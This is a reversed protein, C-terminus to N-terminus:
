SGSCPEGGKPQMPLRLCVRSGVDPQSSASIGYQRGYHLKLISNVNNLGLHGGSLQWDERGLQEVLEKPMGCGNDSVYILMDEGQAIAYLKIYGDERQAVGHIIANEVIPQLVLKPVLCSRFQEGVDMECTFRDGFRVLQIEVYREVLELESELTIFEEAMIAARLLDALDTALDAIRPQGGAVAMWKVSDLTNYLFHPNLQAQMMRLQADNLERQRQVSRDLYDKYEMVMHNFSGALRGLEDERQTEIRVDFNGREVQGMAESLANVPSSLHRSLMWAGWLCLMLCLVSTLGTVLYFASMVSHTFVRPQELVVTFAGVPATYYAFAESGGTLPQGLLLESRLLAAVSDGRAAQSHYVLRWHEDLLLVNDAADYLGSLLTQFSEQTLAFALYGKLADGMRLARALLLRGDEGMRYVSGQAERAARLVGWDTEMQEMGEGNVAYRRRGLLDYVGCHAFAQTDATATFLETYIEYDAPSEMAKLLADSAALTDLAGRLSADANELVTTVQSLRSQAQQSLNSKSREVLLPTMVGVCCCLPLLAVLLVTVFIRTKFSRSIWRTM